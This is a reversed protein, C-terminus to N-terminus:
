LTEGVTQNYRAIAQQLQLKRLGLAREASYARSQVRLRQVLDIEGSDFAIRAMRLNEQALTHQEQALTLETRLTEMARDADHLALELDRRLALQASQTETLQNNAAAVAPAIHSAGGFPLRLGIGISDHTTGTIPEEDRRTGVVLQPSDNGARRVRHLEAQAREVRRQAELLLPHDDEIRSRESQPESFNAPKQNLGSLALYRKEAGRVASLALLHEDRKSLTEDRVLLLDAQALDGAQVRREVDQELARATQWAQQALHAHEEALALEWLAERVRGAVDLELARGHADAFGSAAAALDRSASRQGRRWLPLELNAEWERLGRNSGVQDTQHRVALAPGGSLLSDARASLAAAENRYAEPLGNRPDRTLAADYVDHLNLANSVTVMTEPVLEETGAAMATPALALVTCLFLAKRNSRM